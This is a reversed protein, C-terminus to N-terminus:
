FLLGTLASGLDKKSMMNEWQKGLVTGLMLLM